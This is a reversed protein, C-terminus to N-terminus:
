SNRFFETPNSTAHFSGQSGLHIQTKLAPSGAIALTFTINSGCGAYFEFGELFGHDHLGYHIKNDGRLAVIDTPENKISSVDLILGNTKVSGTFKTLTTSPSTAYVAWWGNSQGIYYGTPSGATVTPLGDTEAPWQGQYCDAEVFYVTQATSPANLSDGNYAANITISGDTSGAPLYGTITADGNGNLTASGSGVPGSHSGGGGSTRTWTFGVTGTPTPGGGKPAVSVEFTAPSSTSTAPPDERLFTTVTTATLPRVSALSVSAPAVALASLTAGLVVLPVIFTPVVYRRMIRHM